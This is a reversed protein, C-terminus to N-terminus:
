FKLPRTYKRRLYALSGFGLVLFFGWVAMTPVHLPSTAQSLLGWRSGSPWFLFGAKGRLNDQPVFGFHRSDASMAHNDGLVLYMRDPVKIGFQRIFAIDLKGDIMPPGADIFPHEQEREKQFFLSLTPDGAQFLPAGLLYLEQNRFYAYRSPTYCAGKASPQYHTDLEIGLNYLLQVHSLDRSLLPHDPPLRTSLGGWSIRYALGNQIEYTGDPVGKMPPLSARQHFSSGYRAAVGDKVIFRCTTMHSMLVDIKEQNLPLLSVSTSFLPRFRGYEDRGLHAHQLSPHHTLELYLPASPWHTMQLPHLQKAVTPSLLRTMAFNKFGWLDFYDKGSIGRPILEGSVAGTAHTTLKAVPENMQTFTVPSFVGQLPASPTHAKGDFRIFPIHELTQFWTPDRLETLEHGERDVGYIEGGYFYLTDGPKGILRKIYQKKGPIVLFYKTDVDAIDMNEGSFIVISGREVLAPDFFFHSTPTITNVGFESKSVFLFDGEKLTPRMSGSPITYLEFCTQRICIAVILAFSLAAILDRVHDWVTKPCLERSALDLSHALGDAAVPDREIIATQLGRLLEQIKEKQSASLGSAKRRYFKYHQRLARRYKNLRYFSSIQKLM